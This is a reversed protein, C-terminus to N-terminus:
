TDRVWSILGCTTWGFSSWFALGDVSDFRCYHVKSVSYYLDWWWSTMFFLPRWISSTYSVFKLDISKRLGSKHIRRTAILDIVKEEVHEVDLYMIEMMHWMRHSGLHYQVLQLVHFLMMKWGNCYWKPRWKGWRNLVHLLMMKWGSYYWKPRWVGWMSLTLSWCQLMMSHSMITWCLSKIKTTGCSTARWFVKFGLFVFEKAQSDMKSVFSHPVDLYGWRVVTELM